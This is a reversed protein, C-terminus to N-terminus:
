GRERGGYDIGLNRLKRYLHTREMGVRQALDGIRGGVAQLQHELYVREFVGRAERLPLDLPLPMAGAEPEISPRLAELARDVEARGIEVGEGLSLLQRVLSVLEAVNGPWRHHRLRNQAAVSFHRYTLGEEAVLRNTWYDLLEPVDEPHERLAPVRLPASNLTHYLDSRFTAQEVMAALDHATLAILRPREVGARATLWQRLRAQGPGDLRAVDQLVATGGTARAFPGDADFLRAHDVDAGYSSLDVEVFPSDSRPSQDHILRAATRKGAGPEGRILAVLDIPALRALRERLAKMAQSAGVLEVHTDRAIRAAAEPPRQEDGGLAGRVTLLLKTLSLPKEVYDYAGFRTAEVATEITGHGSIMIVPFPTGGEGQWDKLLTIGDIDPMWIDILALDPPNDRAVQQATAGDAATTVAYGEEVLIERLLERIDREDDVVLVNTDSM